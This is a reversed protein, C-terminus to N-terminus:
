NNVSSVIYWGDFAFVMAMVGAFLGTNKQGALTELADNSISETLNDPASGNVLGIILLVVGILILPILKIVTTSVAFKASIKPSLYNMLFLALIYVATIIYVSTSSTFGAVGVTYSAAVWALLALISPFFFIGFFWGVLWAVKKGFAEETYDMMGNSNLYKTALTALVTAGFMMIGGAILFSFIGMTINGETAILVDDVKIFIGSGILTGVVLAVATPLGYKAKLGDM